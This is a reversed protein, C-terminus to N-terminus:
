NVRKRIYSGFRRPFGRSAAGIKCFVLAANGCQFNIVETMTFALKANCVGRGQTSFHSRFTVM